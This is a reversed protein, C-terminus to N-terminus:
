AWVLRRLTSIFPGSTGKERPGLAELEAIAAERAADIERKTTEPLRSACDAAALAIAFASRLRM